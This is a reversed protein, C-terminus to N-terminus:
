AIILKWNYKKNIEKVVYGLEYKKTSSYASNNKCKASLSILCSFSKLLAVATDVAFGCICTLVKGCYYMYTRLM